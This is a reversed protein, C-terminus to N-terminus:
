GRMREAKPDFLPQTVLWARRMEGLIEIEVEQGETAMDVPLFGLAVSKEVFHAYGGSTVFGVVEGDKWIPEDAWVDADDAEVVFTCLRKAPGEAKEKLAPAKLVMTGLVPTDLAKSYDQDAVGRALPVLLGLSAGTLAAALLSFIVPLVVHRGQVGTRRLLIFLNRTQRIRGPRKM